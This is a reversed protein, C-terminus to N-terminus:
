GPSKGAALPSGGLAVFLRVCDLYRQHRARISDLQARAWARQADQVQLLGAEGAQYRTRAIDLATAAAGAADNLIALQQEDHALATLEDAVQMFAVLITQRYEALASQYAHEAERKRATLTGGDFLPATVGAALSWATATSSFIGAPALAEQLMNASLTLQPYLRATAVGIAASAAHLNAEAALIDPRRKVLESPLSVPLQQPLSIGNFDLSPPTWDAPTRGVLIALAHRSASLRQQLPPLLAQDAFLQSQASTVDMRTAAGAADAAQVLELTNRDEAVIQGAAAIEAEASAAELAATVTNGTLTVYTADLQHVQYDALARQREVARQGGGFFDPMWSLTPGLEYYSFPPIHFNSPGFLAVGYEQRGAAAGLAVQPLLSGSQAKVAEEAQALTEQAAALDYNNAVAQRILGDLPASAFLTWWETEIRKGLAIRQQLPVAEDRATYAQAQPVAPARFDPGSSCACLLLAAQLLAALLGTRTLCIAPLPNQRNTSM